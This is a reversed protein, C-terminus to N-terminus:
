RLDVTVPCKRLSLRASARNKPALHALFPAEGEKKLVPLAQQVFAPIGTLREFPGAFRAAIVGAGPPGAVDFRGDWLLRGEPPLIVAHDALRGPERGILIHDRGRVIIAGALTRRLPGGSM